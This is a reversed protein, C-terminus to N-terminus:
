GASSAATPSPTPAGPSSPNAPRPTPGAWLAVQGPAWPDATYVYWAGPVHRRLESIGNATTVHYVPVTVHRRAILRLVAAVRLGAIRLGHLVEGRATAPATTEYREGPRAARGFTLVAAGRYHVPVRLGVPCVPGGGGTFCRGRATIVKIASSGEFYVVTGVLSPSAPVLTLSIDLGRAKFEARYRRADALPDRVVVDIYRGHRTFVLAQAKAPGIVQGPSGFSSVVLLAIALCAAALGGALWRWHRARPTRAQAAPCVSAPRRIWHRRRATLEAPGAAHEAPGAAHEAPGAAHAAPGAATAMIRAALDARTDESWMRAADADSVASLASIRSIDNV